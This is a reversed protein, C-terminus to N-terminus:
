RILLLKETATYAGATLKLFYVGSPVKRNLDDVGDWSIVTPVLCYDSPLSFQKVLRGSIEYIKLSPTERNKITQYGLKISTTRCFPNPYVELFIAVNSPKNEEIGVGTNYLITVNSSSYNACAIDLAGDLGFDASMIGWPSNGVTYTALSDFTGDGTNLLVAVTNTGNNSATLDIDGDGDFDGGHLARTNTGTTYGVPSAYTGDGNNLIVTINDGSYNATAFDIYNDGNFDNSYVATPNDGVAYNVLGPFNGDGDNLLISIDNNGANTVGLDL